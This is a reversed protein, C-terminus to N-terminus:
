GNPKFVNKPPGFVQRNTFYKQNTERPQVYIPQSPFKNQQNNQSFKNYLQMPQQTYRMPQQMYQMPQPMPQQMPRNTFNQNQNNNQYNFNQANQTKFNKNFNSFNNQPCTKPPVPNKFLNQSYHFNEEEIVYTMAVEINEPNKLRIFCQLSGTLGRIFTKLCIQEYQRLYIIKTAQDMNTQSNIKQALTSRYVQLRKGFELPPENKLPTALLLDQELCEINRKDGFCNNLATKIQNWDTLELRSGVLIQARDVLKM